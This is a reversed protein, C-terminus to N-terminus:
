LFIGVLDLTYDHSFFVNSEHDKFVALNILSVGNQLTSYYLPLIKNYSFTYYERFWSLLKTLSMYELLPM